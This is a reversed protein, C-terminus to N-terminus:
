EGLRGRQTRSYRGRRRSNWSIDGKARNGQIYKNNRVPNTSGHGGFPEAVQALTLRSADYEVTAMESIYNIDVRLIGDLGDAVRKLEKARGWNDMGRIKLVAVAKEKETIM